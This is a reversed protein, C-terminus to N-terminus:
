FRLDFSLTGVVQGEPQGEFEESLYTVGYFFNSDGLGFNVGARVRHRLEDLDPGRNDPLYVSSAVYATDAGLLFSWGGANQFGNVAAVRQGSVQDRLRLGDQGLTGFTVDVGVRALTEAGARLEVFPRVEGFSLAIGRAVEAHADLYIGNSAQNAAPLNIPNNGFFQHIESHIPKIGTQPGVMVVDAGAAIDYGSWGFHTTAGLWWSPAYLRDGPAPSSLNDPAIIEGRLRYEMLDFPQAPLADNWREGRLVSLRVHGTRWRDYRDGFPIGYWDNGFISIVGLTEVGGTPMAYAIAPDTPTAVSYGDAHAPGGQLVAGAVITSVLGAVAFRASGLMPTM